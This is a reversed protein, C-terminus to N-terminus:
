RRACRACHFSDPNRRFSCGPASGRLPRSGPKESCRCSQSPPTARPAGRRIRVAARHPVPPRWASRDPRDNAPLPRCRRARRSQTSSHGCRRGPCARTCSNARPRSNSPRTDRSIARATRDARRSRRGSDCRRVVFVDVKGEGHTRGSALDVVLRERLDHVELARRRTGVRTRADLAMLDDILRDEGALPFAFQDLWRGLPTAGSSSRSRRARCCMRTM